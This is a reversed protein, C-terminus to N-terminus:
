KENYFYMFIWGINGGKWKYSFHTNNVQLTNLSKLTFGICSMDTRYSLQRSCEFSTKARYIEM